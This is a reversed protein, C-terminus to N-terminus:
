LAYNIRLRQTNVNCIRRRLTKLLFAFFLKSIFAFNFNNILCFKMYNNVPLPVSLNRRSYRARLPSYVRSTIRTDGNLFSFFRTREGRIAGRRSKRKRTWFFFAAVDGLPELSCYAIDPRATGMQRGRYEFGGAANGSSTTDSSPFYIFLFCMPKARDGSEYSISLLRFM